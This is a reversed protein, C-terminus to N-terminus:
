KIRNEIDEQVQTKILEFIRNAVIENGFKDMHTRDIFVPESVNEFVNRLDATGSCVSDLDDLSDALGNLVKIGEFEFPTKLMWQQEDRSLNKTGFGITPQVLVITSYGMENGMECIEYWRNKWSSILKPTDEANFSNDNNTYSANNGVLHNTSLLDHIVFPTRYFPFNKFTFGSIEENKKLMIEEHVKKTLIDLRRQYADNVGDYIIFLDPKFKLLKNKIYYVERVSDASPVGANIVDIKMKTDIDNFKKQLFGPITTNDSESGHGFTTSGGVVFIRFTDKPKELTIEPGRFGYSNINITPYHQDPKLLLFPNEEFWLDSLDTCIQRVHFFNINRYVDYNTLRCNNPDFYEDIRALGEIGLIITLLFMTMFLIQKKYSVVVSM